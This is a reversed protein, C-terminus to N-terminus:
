NFFWKHIPKPWIKNLDANAIELSNGGFSDAALM